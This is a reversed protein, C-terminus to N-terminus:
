PAMVEVWALDANPFGSPSAGVVVALRPVTISQTVSGHPIWTTGDLSYYGTITDTAPNRDLRLYLSTATITASALNTANGSIERAFTVHNGQEYIRTIQVYNDDNQYVLIGAQQYNQTPAFALKLRISTWNAPLDRFLSNRTNNLDVWLDGADCPIRLVGPHGTQDYSVLAGATQETNRTSGSPTRALFDWGASVLSARDPYTFDYRTTGSSNVVLTVAATQPSNSAGAASVTITKTYTGASLGATNVSAAITGSDTGSAPSVSLWAPATQDAIATWNLTGGGSNSVALTQSGPNTGTATTFQLSAPTLALIPANSTITLMVTVTQPTNSAGTASITITKAYTGVALGTANVSATITGSGTGSTPSVSLWAPASQDAAATWNLAGAGSNSVAVTQNGPNTGSPASFALSTPSLAIVPAPVQYVIEVTRTATSVLTNMFLLKNGSITKVTYAQDQGDLHVSQIPYSDNIDVQLTLLDDPKIATEFSRVPSPPIAMRSFGFTAKGTTEEYSSLVFRKAQEIYKIVTGVPAVWVDRSAAYTIAGDDNCSTHFILNAWKGQQEAMDVVGKLDAPPYPVHEHSNFSKLNQFDAPIVDEPLNFNYGRSSLFYNSSIIREQLTNFGCPWAMSIVDPCPEPTNACIGQINPVIEQFQFRSADVADCIHETLHAGLEMGANYYSSYFSPPITGNMFYTGKFGNKTLENFCSGDGDDVSVSVAGKKGDKWNAVTVSASPNVVLSVNIAYPSSDGAANVLLTGADVLVGPALGAANVSVSFSGPTSGSLPAASLWPSPPSGPSQQIRWNLPDPGSSDVTVTQASPNPMGQRTRFILTDPYLLLAADSPLADGSRLVTTSIIDANPFGSPSAGVVIALRPNTLPQKVSGLATWGGPNGPYTWYATITETAPDRDLRLSLDNTMTAASTSVIAPQGGTERAVTVRNGNEFIRTIQVYNDDDQYALLGAQQYNQTPAFTLRLQMSTWDAPLDRFLSNRTNNLNAWLDGTDCPIRLVGPHATQDYSVPHGSTQETDRTSGTPTRALFDWGAAVLSVRDPYLFSYSESADARSLSLFWFLLHILTLFSSRSSSCTAM